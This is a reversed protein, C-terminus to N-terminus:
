ELDNLADDDYSPGQTIRKAECFLKFQLGEDSYHIDDKNEVSGVNDSFVVHDYLTKAYEIMNTAIGARKYGGIVNILYPYAVSEEQSYKGDGGCTTVNFIIKGVQRKGHFAQIIGDNETLAIKRGEKDIFNM